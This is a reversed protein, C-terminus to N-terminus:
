VLVRATPKKKAPLFSKDGKWLLKCQRRYFLFMYSFVVLLAICKRYRYAALSTIYGIIALVFSLFPILIGFFDLWIHTITVLAIYTASVASVLSHM